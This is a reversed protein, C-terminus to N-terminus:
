PTRLTPGSNSSGVPTVARNAIDVQYVVDHPHRWTLADAVDLQLLNRLLMRGIMEHSVILPRQVGYRAIQLLAASARRDGDAYSEGGPFRWEYKSYSRRIMEGPFRQDIESSTLGAMKGNHLEALDEVITVSMGLQTAAFSATTAARGLPSTFVSDVPLSGVFIGLRRAGALGEITLASDLQGQRRRQRNWETEGHRVLFVLEFEDVHGQGNNPLTMNVPYQSVSVDLHSFPDIQNQHFM